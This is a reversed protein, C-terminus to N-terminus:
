LAAMSVLLTGNFHVGLVLGGEWTGAATTEQVTSIPPLPENSWSQYWTQTKSCSHLIFAVIKLGTVELYQGLFYNLALTAKFQLAM